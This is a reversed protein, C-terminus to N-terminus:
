DEECADDSADHDREADLIERAALAEERPASLRVSHDLYVVRQALAAVAARNHTVLLMATGAKAKEALLALMEERGATDVGATPEDLLLLEPDHVLARALYVRQAEGGSLAHLSKDLLSEASVGALASRAVQRDAPTLRFPWRGRAAAVILEASTAPFHRDLSKRQPMYGVRVRARAPAEGRLQVSGASLPVLGLLAKLLTTKGGGNPGLLGVTEGAAMQLSVNEILLHGGLRVGVGEAALVPRSTVGDTM